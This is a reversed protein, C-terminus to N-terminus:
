PEGGAGQPAAEEPELARRLFLRFSGLILEGAPPGDEAYSCRVIPTGQEMGGVEQWLRHAARRCIASHDWKDPFDGTKGAKEGKVPEM